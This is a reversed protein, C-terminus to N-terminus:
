FFPASMDDTPDPAVGKRTVRTVKQLFFNNPVRSAVDGDVITTFMLNLDAVRGKVISKDGEFVEIEDDVRFPRFALVILASTVNSLLSWVAVFGVALAAFTASLIAWAQGVVGTIQLIVLLLVTVSSWRVIAILRSATMPKMHNSRSLRRLLRRILTSVLTFLLILAAIQLGREGLIELVAKFEQM